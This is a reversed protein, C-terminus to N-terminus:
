WPLWFSLRKSAEWAARCVLTVRDAEAGLGKSTRHKGLVLPLIKNVVVDRHVLM